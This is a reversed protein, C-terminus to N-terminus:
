GASLRARWWAVTESIGRELGTAPHWDLETRMRRTDGVIVEPDSARTALAGLRVRDHVGTTQEILRVVDRVAVPEGSAINFAGTARGDLLTIFADAVDAVYMFDRRQHGDTAPVDEGALLGSALSSVLRGTPEGPGYLFFIRGWAFSVDLQAAVATAVVHTAHKCAGYLTAPELPTHHERLLEGDWRYEACTGAM